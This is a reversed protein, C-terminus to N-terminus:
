RNTNSKSDTTITNETASTGSSCSKTFTYISGSEPYSGYQFPIYDEQLRLDQSRSKFDSNSCGPTAPLEPMSAAQEQATTLKLEDFQKTLSIQAIEINTSAAYSQKAIVYDQSNIVTHTIRSEKIKTPNSVTNIGAITVTAKFELPIYETDKVIDDVINIDMNKNPLTPISDDVTPDFLLNSMGDSIVEEEKQILQTSTDAEWKIDIEKNFPFLCDFGKILSWYSSHHRIVKRITEVASALPTKYPALPPLPDGLLAKTCLTMSLSIANLNYGGELILIIRGNALASLHHTMHAYM